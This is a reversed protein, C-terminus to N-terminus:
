SLFCLEIERYRLASHLGYDGRQQLTLKLPAYTMTDSKLDTGEYFSMIQKVLYVDISRHLDKEGANLHQPLCATPGPDVHPGHM